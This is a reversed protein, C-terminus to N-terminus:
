SFGLDTERCCREGGITPTKVLDTFGIGRAVLAGDLYEGMLFKENFMATAVRRLMQKGNRGQYYHGAAVSPPAPNLRAIVIKTEEAPWLDALSLEGNTLVTQHGILSM